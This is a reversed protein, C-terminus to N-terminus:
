DNNLTGRKFIENRIYERYIFDKKGSINFIIDNMDEKSIEVGVMEDLVSLVDQHAIDNQNIRYEENANM